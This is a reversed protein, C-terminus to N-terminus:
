SRTWVGCDSTKFGADSPSITVVQGGGGFNNSIIEAFTGGLGNQREWYCSAGGSASWTGSTVDTGVIFHGDGFPSTPAPTIASLNTELGACGSTTFGADSPSITVVTPANTFENAIIEGLTGGFGSL